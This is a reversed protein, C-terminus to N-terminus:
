ERFPFRKDVKETKSFLITLITICYYNGITIARKMTIRGPESITRSPHVHSHTGPFTSSRSFKSNPSWAPNGTGPNGSNMLNDTSGIM